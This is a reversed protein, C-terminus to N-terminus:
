TSGAAVGGCSAKTSVVARASSLAWNSSFRASNIPIDDSHGAVVIHGSTAALEEAIIELIEIFDDTLSATGPPFSGRDRLRITINNDNAEVDLMGANIEEELSEKLKEAQDEIAQAQLDELKDSIESLGSGLILGIKPSADTIKRISKVAKDVREAFDKRM